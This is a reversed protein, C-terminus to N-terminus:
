LLLQTGDWDERIGAGAAVALAGTAFLPRIAEIQQFTPREHRDVPLATMSTISRVVWRSASVAVGVGFDSVAGDWLALGREEVGVFTELVHGSASPEPAQVTFVLQPTQAFAKGGLCVCVMLTVAISRIHM